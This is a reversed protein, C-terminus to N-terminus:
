LNIIELDPFQDAPEIGFVSCFFGYEAETARQINVGSRFGHGEEPFNLYAVPIGKERLAQVM